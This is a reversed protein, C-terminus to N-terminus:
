KGFDQILKNYQDLDNVGALGQLFSERRDNSLGTFTKIGHQLTPNNQLGKIIHGKSAFQREAWSAKNRAEISKATVIDIINQPPRIGGFSKTLYEVVYNKIDNDSVAARKLMLGARDLPSINIYNILTNM